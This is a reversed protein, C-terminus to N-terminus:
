IAFRRLPCGSWAPATPDSAGGSRASSTRMPIRRRPRALGEAHCGHCGIARTLNEGRAIAEPTGSAVFDSAPAMHTENFVRESAIWVWGYALLAVGLVGAGGWLAVKRLL